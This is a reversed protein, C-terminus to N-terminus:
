SRPTKHVADVIYKPTGKYSIQKELFKHIEIVKSEDQSRFEKLANIATLINENRKKRMKYFFSLLGGVQSEKLKNFYKAVIEMSKSAAKDSGMWSAYLLYKDQRLYKSITSNLEFDSFTKEFAEILKQRDELTGDGYRKSFDYTFRPLIKHMTESENMDLRTFPSYWVEDKELKLRLMTTIKMSFFDVWSNVHTMNLLQPICIPSLYFKKSKEIQYTFSYVMSPMDIKDWKFKYLKRNIDYLRKVDDATPTKNRCVSLDYYEGLLTNLMIENGSNQSKCIIGLETYKIIMSKCNGRADIEDPDEIIKGLLAAKNTEDIALASSMLILLIGVLSTM